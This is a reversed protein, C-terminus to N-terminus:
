TCGRLVASCRSSAIWEPGRRAWAYGWRTMRVIGVILLPLGIAALLAGVGALSWGLATYTTATDGTAYASRSLFYGGIALFPTGIAGLIAGALVLNLGYRYGYRYGPYYYYPFSEASQLLIHSPGDVMSFVLRDDLLRTSRAAPAALAVTPATALMATVVIARM